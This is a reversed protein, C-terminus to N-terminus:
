SHVGSATKGHHVDESVLHGGFPTLALAWFLGLATKMKWDAEVRVVAEALVTERILPAEGQLTNQCTVLEAVRPVPLVKTPVTSASVEMAAWDPAVM